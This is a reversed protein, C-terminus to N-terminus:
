AGKSLNFRTHPTHLLQQTYDRRRRCHWFCRCPSINNLQKFYVCYKANARLLPACHSFVAHALGFYIYLHACLPPFPLSCGFDNFYHPLVKGRWKQRGYFTRLNTMESYYLVGKFNNKRM